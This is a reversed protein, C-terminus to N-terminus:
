IYTYVNKKEYQRSGDNDWSISYLQRHQVTPSLQKIMRITITQM